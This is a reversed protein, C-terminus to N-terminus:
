KTVKNRPALYVVIHGAIYAVLGTVIINIANKQVDNPMFGFRAVEAVLLSVLGGAIAKSFTSIDM